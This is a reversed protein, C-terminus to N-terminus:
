DVLKKACFFFIERHSFTVVRLPPAKPRVTKVDFAYFFKQSFNNSLNLKSFYLIYDNQYAYACKPNQIQTPM